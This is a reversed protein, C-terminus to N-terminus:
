PREFELLTFLWLPGLKRSTKLRLDARRTLRSVPFDPNWGIKAAYKALRREFWAYVGGTSAFHGIVILRGGPRSVRVFEAMVKEPDPVVTMVYMAIVADFNRDPFALDGADMEQISAVNALGKRAVRTRAKALMEPSLDIGHIEHRRDYLPLAMGTGVGAELIRGPAMRNVIRAVARRGTYFPLAFVADYVPAWRSYAKRVSAEDLPSPAHVPASPDTM